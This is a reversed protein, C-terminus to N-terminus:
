KIHLGLKQRAEEYVQNWKNDEWDDSLLDKFLEAVFNYGYDWGRSERKTCILDLASGFDLYIGRPFKKTLESILVKAGMGCCTIIIHNEDSGIANSVEQLVINFKSDFWNNFDVFICEDINLLNKSKILLRNCVIIKKMKSHKIAKYLLYKKSNHTKDNDIIISHYDVWKIQEKVISEWIKKNEENHWLGIYCNTHNAVIYQFSEKLSRSLNETYLDNDCNHGSNPNLLCQFEGDGYKCFVVPNQTNVCETLFETINM